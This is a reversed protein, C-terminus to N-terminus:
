THLKSFKLESFKLKPSYGNSRCNLLMARWAYPAALLRCRSTTSSSVFAPLSTLALFSTLHEIGVLQLDQPKVNTYPLISIGWCRPEAPTIIVPKNYLIFWKDEIPATM